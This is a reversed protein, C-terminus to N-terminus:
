NSDFTESLSFSLKYDYLIASWGIYVPRHGTYMELIFIKCDNYTFFIDM